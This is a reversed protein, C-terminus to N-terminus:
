QLELHVIMLGVQENQQALRQEFEGMVKSLMSGVIQLLSKKLKESTSSHVVIDSLM